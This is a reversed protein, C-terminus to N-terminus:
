NTFAKLAEIDAGKELLLKCIAEQCKLTAHILPTQCNSDLEEIDMGMALLVRIVFGNGNEIANHIRGRSSRKRRPTPRSHTETSSAEQFPKPNSVDTLDIPLNLIAIESVSLDGLTMDSQISWNGASCSSDSSFVSGSSSDMRLGFQRPRKYARSAKLDEMYSPGFRLSFSANDSNNCPRSNASSLRTSMASSGTSGPTSKNLRIENLARAQEEQRSILDRLLVSHAHNSQLIKKCLEQLKGQVVSAETTTTCTIITLMLNLSLKQRQLDEIICLVEEHRWLGWKVRNAIVGVRKWAASATTPDDFGCVENVMKELKSHVIVCGTLTAMLNHISIMTLNGHNPKSGTGYLLLQVQCFIPQMSEVEERVRKMTEPADKVKSFLDKAMGVIHASITILGAVSAAISLPDGM